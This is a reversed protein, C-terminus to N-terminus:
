EIGRASIINWTFDEVKDPTLISVFFSDTEFPKVFTTTFYKRSVPKVKVCMDIDLVSPICTPDTYTVIVTIETVTINSNGNYLSGKLASNYVLGARGTVLRLEQFTLERTKNETKPIKIFKGICANTIATAARDSTVGKMSELICEDYNSPGFWGATGLTPIALIFIATLLLQKNTTKCTM